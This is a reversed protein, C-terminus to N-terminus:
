IMKQRMTWSVKVDSEVTLMVMMLSASEVVVVAVIGFGTGSILSGRRVLQLGLLLRMMTVRDVDCRGVAACLM